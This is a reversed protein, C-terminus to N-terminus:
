RKDGKGYYEMLVNYISAESYHKNAYNVIFEKNYRSINDRVYLMSEQLEDLNDPSVTQGLRDDWGDRVAASTTAIVPLGCAWAEIIPVGFTEYNSYCILADANGVKEATEERTLKGTFIVQDKVGCHQSLKILNDYEPGGGVIVLRVSEGKYVKSFAEIIKDFQKHPFLVGVAIFTFKDNRKDIPKFLDNVINPVVYLQKETLTLDYVADRLPPGVCLFADANNAYMTLQKREYRDIVKKLVQTWHETCIVRTGKSQYALIDSAVTINSPYHVHIVDPVGTHKEVQSLLKNWVRSKFPEFHLKMREITYIQSYTYIDLLDENWHCLGWKKVKKFPHFVCSIYTVKHGYKALMKAQELEFSGQMNNIKQPYSRGIVWINM